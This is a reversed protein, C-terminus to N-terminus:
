KAAEYEERLLSYLCIDTLGQNNLAAKRLRGEFVLGCKQMVRGSNPNAPDHAAEIRQFGVTDFLYAIVARFAEATLGQHWWAAGICYGIHATGTPENINVVSISGIPEGSAKLEIAWQYYAAEGYRSVWSALVAETVAVDAHPPWTLFRTVQPDHCWNRFAAPADALVFPRLTLRPTSLVVTGQHNM